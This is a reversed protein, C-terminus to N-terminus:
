SNNKKNQKKTSKAEKFIFGVFRSTKGFASQFGATNLDPATINNDIPCVGLFLRVIIRHSLYSSPKKQQKQKNKEKWGCYVMYSFIYSTSNSRLYHGATKPFIITRETKVLRAIIQFVSKNEWESIQAFKENSLSCKKSTWMALLFLFFDLWNEYMWFIHQSMPSALFLKVRTESKLFAKAVYHM